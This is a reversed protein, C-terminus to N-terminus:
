PNLQIVPYRALRETIHTEDAAGLGAPCSPSRTSAGSPAARAATAGTDSFEFCQDPAFAVRDDSNRTLRLPALAVTDKGSPLLAQRRGGERGRMTDM